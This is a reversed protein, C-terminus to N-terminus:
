PWSIDLDPFDIPPIYITPKPTPTALLDGLISPDITQLGVTYHGKLTGTPEPTATSKAAVPVSGDSAEALNSFLLRQDPESAIGDVRLHNVQEFLRVNQIAIGLEGAVESAAILYDSHFFQVNAASLNLLGVLKPGACIPESLHSRMGDAALARLM